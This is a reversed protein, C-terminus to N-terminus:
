ITCIPSQCFSEVTSFSISMTSTAKLQLNINNLNIGGIIELDMLQKSVSFYAALSSNNKDSFQIFSGTSNGVLTVENYFDKQVDDGYKVYLNSVGIVSAAYQM